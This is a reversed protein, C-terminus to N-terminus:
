SIRRSLAGTVTVPAPAPLTHWPTFHVHTLQVGDPRVAQRSPCLGLSRAARYYSFFGCLQCRRWQCEIGAGLFMSVPRTEKYFM